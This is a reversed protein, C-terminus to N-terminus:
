FQLTSKYITVKIKLHTPAFYSQVFSPLGAMCGGTDLPQGGHVTNCGTGRVNPNNVVTLADNNFTSIYLKKNLAQQIASYIVGSKKLVRIGKSRRFQWAPASADFQRVEEFMGLYLYKGNPSFGVGYPLKNKKLTATRENSLIGTKNDFDTLTVSGAGTYVFAVMSGIPDVKMCGLHMEGPFFPNMPSPGIRSIVPPGIGSRGVEFSYFENSGYKQAIVWISTLNHHEVAALREGARSMLMLNKRTTDVDGKGGNLRMDVVSYRLGNRGKNLAGDDITFIYYLFKNGPYPVIIASQSSSRHGLLGHGNPMAIHTSDWISDGDTYFLLDGSLRHSVSACGELTVLVGFTDSKATTKTFHLEGKNGFYWWSSERQAQSSLVLFLTTVTLLWGLKIGSLVKM